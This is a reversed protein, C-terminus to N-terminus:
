QDEFNRSLHCSPHSEHHIDVRHVNVRPNLHSVDVRHNLKVISGHLAIGLANDLQVGDTKSLM